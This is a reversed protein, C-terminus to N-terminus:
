FFSVKKPPLPVSPYVTGYFACIRLSPYSSNRYQSEEVHMIRPVKFVLVETKKTLMRHRENARENTRENTLTLHLCETHGPNVGSPRAPITCPPFHFCVLNCVWETDRWPVVPSERACTGPSTGSRLGPVFRAGCHMTLLFSRQLNSERRKTTRECLAGVRRM